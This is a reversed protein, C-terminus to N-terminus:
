SGGTNVSFGTSGFVSGSSVQLNASYSLGGGSQFDFRLNYGGNADTQVLMPSDKPTTGDYLQVLGNGNPVAWIYSIHLNIYKLPTDNADKVSIHFNKTSWSASATGDTVEVNAAPSITITATAPADGGDDTIIVEGTLNNSVCGESDIVSIEFSYTDEVTTDVIVQLLITGVTSGNVGTVTFTDDSIMNNSNFVKLRLNSVDGGSDTFDLSGFISAAEGGSNLEVVKPSYQLNSIVPIHSCNNGDNPNGGGGGSSGCSSLFVVLLIFLM